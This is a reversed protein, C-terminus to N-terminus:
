SLGFAALNILLTILIIIAVWLILSHTVMRLTRTIDQNDPPLGSGILPKHRIEGHYPTAGGLQVQLAGAGSCMVPGANPSECKSAQKYWCNLAQKTNGLAAYTLATLRAPVYNLIDDVRATWWGFYVFRSTKYGWMADLTNCLRYAVLGPAGAVVFWFLTAFVADSGNELTTEITAQRVAQQDLAETDRSVIKSLEKRALNLDNNLLANLVSQVHDYLSRYAIAYYLVIADLWWLSHWPNIWYMLATAPVILLAWSFIGLLKSNVPDFYNNTRKELMNALRGFAVLPHWRQIEGILMDFALALILSVCFLM